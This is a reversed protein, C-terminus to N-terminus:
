MKFTMISWMFMNKKEEYAKSDTHQQKQTKKKKFHYMFVGAVAKIKKEKNINKFWSVNGEKSQKGHLTM